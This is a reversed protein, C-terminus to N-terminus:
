RYCSTVHEVCHYWRYCSTEVCRYRTGCVICAMYRCQTLRLRKIAENVDFLQMILPRTLVLLATIAEM